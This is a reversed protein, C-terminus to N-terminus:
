QLFEAMLVTVDIHDQTKEPDTPTFFILDLIFVKKLPTLALPTISRKQCKSQKLNQIETPFVHLLVDIPLTHKPKM